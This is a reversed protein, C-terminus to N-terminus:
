NRRVRIRITITETVKRTNRVAPEFYWNARVYKEIWRDIAADGSELSEIWREGNPKVTVLVPITADIKRGSAIKDPLKVISPGRRLIPKDKESVQYVIRGEETDRFPTPSGAAGSGSKQQQTIEGIAWGTGMGVTGLVVALMIGIGYRTGISLFM